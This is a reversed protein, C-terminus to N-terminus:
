GVHRELESRLLRVAQFMRSKVTGVPIGLIEAIEPYPTEQAAGLVWVERLKPPLRGVATRIREALESDMAGREPRPARPDAIEASGSGGSGGDDSPSDDLSRPRRRKKELENLWANRAIQFLWTSFRATPQYAPAARWVRLFVDQLVDEATARDGCMREIFHLLPGSWREYLEALATEDGRGLRAMAAVSPDDAPPVRASAVKEPEAPM